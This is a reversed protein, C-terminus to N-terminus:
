QAPCADAGRLVRGDALKLVPTPMMAGGTEDRGKDVAYIRYLLMQQGNGYKPAHIAARTEGVLNMGTKQGAPRPGDVVELQWGRNKANRDAGELYPNVAGAKPQILYDAVSEIPKGAGDYSIISMYRSHPFEGDLTLQAGEPVTFTAAWYFTAADPYAVNLYPDASAPGRSWFCTRPGPIPDKGAAVAALAADMRDAPAAAQTNASILTLAAAALGAFFTRANM